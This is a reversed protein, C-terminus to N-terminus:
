IGSLIPSHLIIGAVPYKKPCSAIYCSPGSGVSQGYLIIEKGPNQVVHSQVCWEYVTEIDVYTQKETPPVGYDLSAGYGTYDYAVVNIQLTNRLLLYM